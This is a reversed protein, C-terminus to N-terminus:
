LWTSGRRIPTALSRKEGFPMRRGCRPMRVAAKCTSALCIPISTVRSSISGIPFDARAWNSGWWGNPRRWPPRTRKSLSASRRLEVSREGRQDILGTEASVWLVPSGPDAAALDATEGLGYKLALYSEVQRRQDENVSDFIMLEAVGGQFNNGFERLAGISAITAADYEVPRASKQGILKGDAYIRKHEGDITYVLLHYGNTLASDSSWPTM